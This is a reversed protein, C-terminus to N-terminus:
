LIKGAFQSTLAVTQFQGIRGELVPAPAALPWASSFGGIEAV